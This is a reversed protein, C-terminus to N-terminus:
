KKGNQEEIIEEMLAVQEELMKLQVDCAEKRLTAVEIEHIIKQLKAQKRHIKMQERHIKMIKRKKESLGSLLKRLEFDPSSSKMLDFIATVREQTFDIAEFKALSLVTKQTISLRFVSGAGKSSQKFVHRIDEPLFCFLHTAKKAKLYLFLVFAGVVYKSNVEVSTRKKLERYKCQIRCFRGRDDVSTFGVLDTGWQDFHPKAVLIDARLLSSIVFTEGIQELRKTDM